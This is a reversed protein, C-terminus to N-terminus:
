KEVIKIEEDTLEYLKYVEDDIKHDTKEIESKLNDWKDTNEPTERLEKNLSIIKEVLVIIQKQQNEAGVYIPIELLPGKDVQLLDGLQKGKNKLWFYSLKSNLIGTLYKLNIRDTKIFNLARSGYYTDETYFFSPYTTRVGCIIKPGQKFFMEERERHLYFYPKNPTGYKIKAEKLIEEFQEFHKEINPYDKLKKDGFNKDSIYFIYNESEGSKYRGSATFFPKLFEKENKNYDDINKELFYKDPAAVIGQGVEKDTLEFNKKSEIKDFISGSEQDSFTINKDILKEPEIEVKAKDGFIESVLKEELINKDNIRLYQVEYKQEPKKKEFIYIMTQIGAQEFVKYDGFDIFTKLEGDTLIKNRMISAGANTVWNNPAIFGMIGGVKLLDVSVCAFMTWLDMKGQYYPNNHLGDFASKNVFEKIYPPNGIIVDFGGQKFVDPFQEQWNFPKKDRWNEGFQKKMEEDTGSVLSNGNKINGDLRPLAGREDLSNILLNLRAIEVAQGDLDVGYINELIIRRKIYPNDSGFEEYKEAIADLAKILFSGSGCSPDLVKIKKLDDVTKCKDLVPKLANRVIYDVVFPPTYFIGQEKRKKADKHVLIKEGDQKFLNRNVVQTASLKYSLYSEYVSGLVDAPMEKFNYEYQGKKGYLKYIVEKLAGSYEEWKEFYHESFLNSDYIADMERFKSVLVEFPSSAKQGSAEVERLLNKLINPEVGRDEAVRLFILRDLLKQVGEDIMDKPIHRSENCAEFSETLRERCWQIDENLKKIVTSVSVSKEKKGIKEAYADLEKEKFSQKSLKWLTEFDDIFNEYSIEFVMRDMLDTKDIRQANFVKIKEFDTLVAYTVGKNWSYNIVQFAFDEDDMDVSLKKAELYFQTIENIKFNYDPRGTGKIHDQASVEKKDSTKWGLIDFLPLIFDKITDEESYSKQTKNQLIEKYKEVLVSIEEKEKIYNNTDM